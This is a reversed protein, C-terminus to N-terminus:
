DHSTNGYDNAYEMRAREKRRFIVLLRKDRRPVIYPTIEEKMKGSALAKYGEILVQLDSGM